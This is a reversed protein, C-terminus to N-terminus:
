ISIIDIDIHHGLNKQHGTRTMFNRVTCNGESDM